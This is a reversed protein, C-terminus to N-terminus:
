LNARKMMTHVAAAPFITMQGPTLIESVTRAGNEAIMYTQTTGSMAVVFNTARPHIHPPLM